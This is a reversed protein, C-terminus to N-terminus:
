GAILTGLFGYMATAELTVPADGESGKPKVTIILNGLWINQTPLVDGKIEKVLGTLSQGNYRRLGDASSPDKTSISLAGVPITGLKVYRGMDKGDQIAVPDQIKEDFELTIKTGIKHLSNVPPMGALKFGANLYSADAQIPNVATITKFQTGDVVVGGQYPIFEAARRQHIDFGQDQAYAPPAFTAVGSLPNNNKDTGIIQIIMAQDPVFSPTDLIAMIEQPQTGLLVNNAVDATYTGSNTGTILLLGLDTASQTSVYLQQEFGLLPKLATPYQAAPITKPGLM